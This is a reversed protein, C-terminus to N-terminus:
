KIQRYTSSITNNLKIKLKDINIFIEKTEELTFYKTLVFFRLRSHVECNSGRAYYYFKLREKFFFRGYGEAINSMTSVGEKVLHEGLFRKDSPLKKILKELAVAIEEAIKYIELDRFDNIKDNVM